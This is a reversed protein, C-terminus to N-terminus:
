YLLFCCPDLFPDRIYEVLFLSISLSYISQMIGIEPKRNSHFRPKLNITNRSPPLCALLFLPLSFLARKETAWIFDVIRCPIFDSKLNKVSGFASFSRRIQSFPTALFYPFSPKRIVLAVTTQLTWKRVSSWTAHQLPSRTFKLSLLLGGSISHVIWPLRCFFFLELVVLFTVLHLCAVALFSSGLDSLWVTTHRRRWRYYLQSIRVDIWETDRRTFSQTFEFVLLNLFNFKKRTVLVFTWNKRHNIHGIIFFTLM